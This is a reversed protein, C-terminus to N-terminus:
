QYHGLWSKAEVSLEGVVSINGTQILIEDLRAGPFNARGMLARLLDWTGSNKM